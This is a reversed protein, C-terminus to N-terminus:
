PALHLFERVTVIKIKRFTKLELLEKDGTIIFSCRGEVAAEIVRNDPSDKVVDLAVKPQVIKFIVRAPNKGATDINM